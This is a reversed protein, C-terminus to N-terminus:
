EQEECLKHIFILVLPDNSDTAANADDDEDEGEPEMKAPAAQPLALAAQKMTSKLKQTAMLSKMRTSRKLLEETAEKTGEIRIRDIDYGLREWYTVPQFYGHIYDSKSEVLHKVVMERNSKNYDKSSGGKRYFVGSAVRKAVGRVGSYAM